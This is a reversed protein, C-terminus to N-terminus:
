ITLSDKISIQIGKAELELTLKEDDLLKRLANQRLELQQSKQQESRKQEVTQQVKQYYDPTTWNQYRSVHIM